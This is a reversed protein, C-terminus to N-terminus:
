NSDSPPIQNLNVKNIAPALWGELVQWIEEGGIRKLTSHGLPKHDLNLWQMLKRQQQHWQDRNLKDIKSAVILNPIQMEALWGHLQHDGTSPEHRCDVIHVVGLLQRRQQFYKSILKGWYEQQTKSVKAYGYGPLDVCYFTDNIKFYNILQTKGPTSSTKVLNKRNLLMNILSSKGVNSKGAFAIEAIDEAPCQLLHNASITFEASKIIM